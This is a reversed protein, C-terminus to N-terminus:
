TFATFKEGVTIYKTLSLYVDVTTLYTCFFLKDCTIAVHEAAAIDAVDITGVFIGISGAM